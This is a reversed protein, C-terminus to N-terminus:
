RNPRVALDLGLYKGLRHDHETLYGPVDGRGVLDVDSFITKKEGYRMGIMKGVAQLADNRTYLPEVQEGGKKRKKRNQYNADREALSASDQLLVKCLDKSANQTYIPGAFGRKVLLPLRGSHDIHAHSLVVADVTKPDFPFPLKNKEEVERRGQLLGCDLLIQKGGIRLIHCSGTVGGTAGYFELEM